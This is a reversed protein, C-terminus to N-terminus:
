RTRWDPVKDIMQPVISEFHGDNIKVGQLRHFDQIENVIYGQVATPGKIALSTPLLFLVTKRVIQTELVYM